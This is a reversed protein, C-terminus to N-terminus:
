PAEGLIRGLRGVSRHIDESSTTRGLSIRISSTAHEVDLGLALLVHSPELSGSACASGASVEVGALDLRVVLTRADGGHGSVSLTNPLRTPDDIAPGNLRVEPVAARLGRWLDGTLARTRAAYGGTEQVALEIAVAAAAIAPVNETGPRFEAEQAGGFTRAALPVHGRRVLVGVGLPGGIKHASFTALDVGAAELDFPSKGLLQVADSHLVARSGAASRVDALNVTSGIENNAAMVSVFTPGNSAVRALEDLDPAGAADVRLHHVSRGSAAIQEAPELIAAHEIATTVVQMEAPGAALAGFLALNNAETGGSTFLVEDETVGLAAAVRMRADDIAARARRGSDHVSSANGLGDDLAALLAERAEPRLPTTANHDLYVRKLPV